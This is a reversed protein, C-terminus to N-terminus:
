TTYGYSVLLLDLTRMRVVCCDRNRGSEMGVGVNVFKWSFNDEETGIQNIEIHVLM